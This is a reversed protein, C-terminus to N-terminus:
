INEKALNNEIALVDSDLPLHSPIRPTLFCDLSYVELTYVWLHGRYRVHPLSYSM